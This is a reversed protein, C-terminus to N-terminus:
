NAANIGTALIYTSARNYLAGLGPKNYFEGSLFGRDPEM